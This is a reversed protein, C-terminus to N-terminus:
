APAPRRRLRHVDLRSIVNCSTTRAPRPLASLGTHFLNAGLRELSTPVPTPNMETCPM